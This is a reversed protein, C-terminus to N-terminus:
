LYPDGPRRSRVVRAPSGWAVTHSPLDGTLVAGAGLVSHEGVTLGHRVVAGMAVATATGINVMGGTLAGPGLSAGEGLFADHDLNAQAGLLGHAGVSAQPGVTAGALVVVGPGLRASRAVSATPHVVTLCPLGSAEAELRQSVVLRTHNDGIGIVVGDIRGDRWWEAVADTGGVVPVGLVESGVELGDDVVAAVNVAMGAQAADIVCRAHGSGGVVM